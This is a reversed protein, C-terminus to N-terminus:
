EPNGSRLGFTSYLSPTTFKVGAFKSIADAAQKATDYRRSQWIVAIKERLVEVPMGMREAVRSLKSPRGLKKSRIRGRSLSSIEERAAIALKNGTLPPTISVLKAGGQAIEDAYDAWKEARKKASGHVPALLSPWVVRVTSATRNAKLLKNIVNGTRDEVYLTGQGGFAEIQAEKSLRPHPNVYDRYDPRDKM